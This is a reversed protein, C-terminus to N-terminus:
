DARVWVTYPPHSEALKFHQDLYTDLLTSGPLVGPQNEFWQFRSSRVVVKVAERELSSIMERQVEERTVVNPDFQTYRTGARRNALFYLDSDNAHVRDHRDTGVYIADGVSTHRALYTLVSRRAEAINADPEYFGPRPPDLLYTTIPSYHPWQKIPPWVLSWNSRSLLVVAYVVLPAKLFWWLSYRLVCVECLASLLTLAPTVSFLAHIFDTRGMMQPLVAVSLCGVGVIAMGGRGLRLRRRGLILLAAVAPGLGTLLVAGEFRSRWFVWEHESTLALVKPLPLVRAPMVYRVQSLFLDDVVRHLGSSILLPIWIPGMVSVLGLGLWPLMRRPPVPVGFWGYVRNPLFWTCGTPLVLYVLLDHRVCGLAGLVIGAGVFRRPAPRDIAALTLEVFALALALGVIWAFPFTALISLWLVVLGAALWSFARGAMRGALRGSLLAIAVYALLALLRLALALHSIGFVKWLGAVALFIGPGYNTYFDRYPLAGLLMLQANTLILGQDFFDFPANVGPLRAWLGLGLLAIGVVSLPRLRFLGRPVAKVLAALSSM